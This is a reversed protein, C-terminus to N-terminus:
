VNEVLIRKMPVIPRETTPGVLEEYLTHLEDATARPSISVVKHRGYKDLGAVKMPGVGEEYLQAEAYNSSALFPRKDAWVIEVDEQNWFMVCQHLTSPVALSAHIWDRGLLANYSPKANIVFFPTVLTKTGVTLNLILIGQCQSIRGTFDTLTASSLIVDDETKGLKSLMSKPILNAAAGNDVLIRNVPIGDLCGTVYLPKIHNAMKVTPREFMAQSALKLMDNEAKEKLMTASSFEEKPRRSEELIEATAGLVEVSGISDVDQNGVLFAEPPMIFVMNCSKSLAQVPKFEEAEPNLAKRKVSEESSTTSMDQVVLNPTLQIKLKPPDRAYESGFDREKPKREKRQSVSDEIEMPDIKNKGKYKQIVEMARKLEDEDASLSVLTPNKHEKEKVNKKEPRVPRKEQQRMMEEEKKMRQYRRRQTRSYFETRYPFKPHEIKTWKDSSTVKPKVMRPRERSSSAEYEPRPNVRPREEGKLRNFVSEQEPRYRSRRERKRSDEVTITEIQPDTAKVSQGCQTCVLTCKPTYKKSLGPEPREWAEPFLRRRVQDVVPKKGQEDFNRWKVVSPKVPAQELNIKPRPADRPAGRLNLSVMHCHLSGQPFPNADVEMPKKAPQEFKFEGKDLRDQIDNRFVLCKNTSHGWSNHYKCYEKGKLEDKSPIKHGPPLNVMKDFNLQDFIIEAKTVDFTYTRAPKSVAAKMEHTEIKGTRLMYPRNALEAVAIEMEVEPEMYSVKYNPDRHYTGRSATKKDHEEKLVKEYRATKATMEFLDRFDSEYFRKKLEFSLGNTALRVYEREPLPVKCKFRAKKFRALYTEVKEDPLQRLGSIDTMTVEPEVRYFQQHFLDEMQRWAYVSNPPLNIYWAFATGTLSNPFLRLKWDDRTGAEGCQVQFRAVHEITSEKPDEGSFTHFEPVRYGKPFHENDVADIYPKTYMPRGIPRFEPGLQEQLIAVVQDRMPGHNNMNNQGQQHPVQQGMQWPWTGRMDQQVQREAQPMVLPKEFVPPPRYHQPPGQDGAMIFQKNLNNSPTQFLNGGVQKNQAQANSGSTNGQQWTNAQVTPTKPLLTDNFSGFLPAKTQPAEGLKNKGKFDEKMQGLLEAMQTTLLGVSQAVHLNSDRVESMAASVSHCIDQSMEKHAASMYNRVSDISGVLDSFCVQAANQSEAHIGQDQKSAVSEEGTAKAGTPQADKKAM